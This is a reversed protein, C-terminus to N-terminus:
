VAVSEGVGGKFLGNKLYLVCDEPTRIRMRYLNGFVGHHKTKILTKYLFMSDFAVGFYQDGDKWTPDVVNNDKDVVWAHALPIGLSTSTAYGECYRYVPDELMKYANSYCEGLTMTGNVSHTQSNMYTGFERLIRYEIPCQEAGMLDYLKTIYDRLTDRKTM